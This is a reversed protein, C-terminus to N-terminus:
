GNSVNAYPGVNVCQDASQYGLALMWGFMLIAGVVLGLLLGQMRSRSVRALMAGDYCLGRAVRTGWTWGERGPLGNIDHPIIAVVRAPDAQRVEVPGGDRSRCAYFPAVADNAHEM